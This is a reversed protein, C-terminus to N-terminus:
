VLYDKNLALWNNSVITVIGSGLTLFSINKLSRQLHIMTYCLRVTCLPETQCHGNCWGAWDKRSSTLKSSASCLPVSPRGVSVVQYFKLCVSGFGKGVAFLHFRIKLLSMNHQQQQQTAETTDSETCGWLRCGVLSRWGPIRWALISSPTAM